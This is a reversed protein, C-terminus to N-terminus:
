CEAGEIRAEVAKCIRNELEGYAIATALSNYTCPEPNGTDALFAEGADTNCNQLLAHAKSYYIVHESGDACSAAYANLELDNM